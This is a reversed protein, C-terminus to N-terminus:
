QQDSSASASTNVPGDLLTVENDDANAIAAAPRKSVSSSRAKSVRERREAIRRENEKKLYWKAVSAAITGLVFFLVLLVTIWGWADAKTAELNRKVSDEFKLDDTNLQTKLDFGKVGEFLEPIIANLAQVLYSKFNNFDQVTCVDPVCMGVSMPIPFAQQVTALIYRFGDPTPL